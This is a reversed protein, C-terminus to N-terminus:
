HERSDVRDILLRAECGVWRCGGASCVVVGLCVSADLLSGVQFIM